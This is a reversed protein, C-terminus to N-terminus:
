LNKDLIITFPVSKPLLCKRPSCLQYYVSGKVVIPTKLDKVSVPTLFIVVKEFYRQTGMDPDEKRHLLGLEATSDDFTVVPNDLFTIRTPAAQSQPDSYQSFIYWTPQLHAKAHVEFNLSDTQVSYFEWRIQSVSDLSLALAVSMLM